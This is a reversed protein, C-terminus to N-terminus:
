ARRAFRERLEALAQPTDADILVSRDSTELLSVDDRGRLLKRAGADGSLAAVKPFLKRAVHVPNRSNLGCRRAQYRRVTFLRRHTQM